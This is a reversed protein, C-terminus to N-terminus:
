QSPDTHIYLLMNFTQAAAVFSTLRPRPTTMISAMINGVALVYPLALLYRNDQPGALHTAHHFM